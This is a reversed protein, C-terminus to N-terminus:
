SNATSAQGPKRALCFHGLTAEQVQDFRDLYFLLLPLVIEFIAVVAAKLPLRLLPPLRHAIQNRSFVWYPLLQIQFALYWFYGGLPKMEEIVLGHKELLHKIGYSTYRYFDYPIQHEHWSQPAVLILVGGPKLVRQIEAIVASPEAVHEMVQTFIVADFTNDHFCLQDLSNIADLGSYDWSTDGVALDVGLYTTHAFLDRFRGEGAGADLVLSSAPLKRATAELLRTMLFTNVEIRERIWSPLM